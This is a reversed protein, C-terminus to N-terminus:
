EDQINSITIYDPVLRLRDALSELWGIKTHNGFGINLEVMINAIRTEQLRPKLFERVPESEKLAGNFAFSFSGGTNTEYDGELKLIVEADKIWGVANLLPFVGSRSEIKMRSLHTIGRKRLEELVERVAWEPRGTAQIPRISPEPQPVHEINRDTTSDTKENPEHAHPKIPWINRKTAERTTYVMSNSNISISFPPSGKGCVLDASEYVFVGMGVGKAIGDKFVSDGLLLPLATNRHFEDRFALTNIRGKRLKPIESILSEPNDSQDSSGRVKGTERLKDILGQQGGAGSWNVLVYKLRDGRVPYYAYKYCGLIADKLRVDSAAKRKQIDHQQYDAFDFIRDPAALKAIALHRRAAAYLDDVDGSYAVLFLLNNRYLRNDKIVGKYLFVDRIADPPSEPNPTSVVGYWPIVLKPRGTDDPVDGYGDPFIYSDLDGNQFTARIRHDIERELDSVDLGQEARQVAQNLNPAAQFQIPKELNDDLYLSERRFRELAEDVYSLEIGPSLISYRLSKNDIGKLQQNFALTHFFVTRAVYTTFPPQNKYHIDDLRQAQSTKNVDDCAIDSDIASAFAEQKMKSTIELRIAENGIDFHYLHIAAPNIQGRRKWLGHVVHGLLRLMGRVRQFNELTSTKYILTNLIDPHLPYGARFDDVTKQRDAVDPLLHRNTAWAKRYADVVMDVRSEDRREFLRRRLIQVTEGEETPNLLTAKRSSVSELEALITKNEAAYADANSGEALTYVLAANPSEEVAKILATLFAVFQGGAGEHMRAKRLYVAIEDLLILASGDGLLGRITGAGPASSSISDDVRRYGAKGALRYAIEGWPTRANIGEGLNHGSSIDANQGDFVAVRVRGGPLLAPDVFESVMDHSPSNVAHLLAILAHTKGGGFSTNLWFIASSSGGSLRTLVSRLLGRIGKTPYTSAFFKAPDAYESAAEGEAVKALDAALESEVIGDLIDKRPTCIDFISPLRGTGGYRALRTM